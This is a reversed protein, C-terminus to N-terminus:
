ALKLFIDSDLTDSPQLTRTATLARYAIFLGATGTQVTALVSHTAAGWASGGTNEWSITKSVVRADGSDPALTPWGTTNREITNTGPYGTGTVEGTLTALTDTDVPTDNYLRLFFNTPATAARFYVDLIDDEGEDVLNNPLLGQDNIVEAEVVSGALVAGLPLEGVGSAWILYRRGDEGVRYQRFRYHTPTM